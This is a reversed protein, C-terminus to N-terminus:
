LLAPQQRLHLLAEAITEIFQRSPKIAAHTPHRPPQRQDFKERVGDLLLYALAPDRRVQGHLIQYRHRADAKLIALPHGRRKGFM